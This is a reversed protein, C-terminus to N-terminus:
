RSDFSLVTELSMCIMQFQRIIFSLLSVKFFHQSGASCICFLGSDHLPKLGTIICVDNSSFINQVYLGLEETMCIDYYFIGM